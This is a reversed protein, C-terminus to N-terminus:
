QHLSGQLCMGIISSGRSRIASSRGSSASAASSNASVTQNHRAHYSALASLLKQRTRMRIPCLFRRSESLQQSVLQFQQRNKDPTGTFISHFAAADALVPPQVHAKRSSSYYVFGLTRARDRHRHGHYASVRGASSARSCHRDSSVWRSTTEAQDRVITAKAACAAFMLRGRLPIRASLSPCRSKSRASLGACASAGRRFAIAAPFWSAARKRPTSSMLWSRVSSASGTKSATGAAPVELSGEVQSPQEM